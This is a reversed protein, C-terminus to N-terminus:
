IHILSLTQDTHIQQIEEKTAPRTQVVEVESPDVVIVDDHKNM